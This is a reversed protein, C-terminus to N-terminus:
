PLHAGCQRQCFGKVVEAAAANMRRAAANAHTIREAARRAEACLKREDVTLVRDDAFVMQGGIMVERVAAGTEALVIQNLTDRQPTYHCYSRDLFVLDAAWGEAIQGVKDFGMLQASGRTAMDFAESTRVWQDSDLATARSLTAALRMAEFMNQGDSTNSADTGIGMTVGADALRRLPAVGSGLRLNSMPNHSVGCRHAALLSMEDDSLWVGHAGSFRESLVGLRHLHETLSTGFKQQAMIQQLRTEALHTQLPLGLKGSLAACAKLFDDSCHLPITPGLGPRVRDAPVPWSQLAADCVAVTSDWDPLTLAAVADKLPGDFSDLLGPLAQYITQDAIMPAVVARLGVDHYAQAVAHAGEVTPGPLEIFLDFCATCGKRILEVASLQACLALDDHSRGLNLWASGALFTELVADDPVGGRALAGHSHTHGNVLGPIVIRDSADVTRADAVTEVSPLIATITDRDILLSLDDFRDNELLVQGGRILTKTM